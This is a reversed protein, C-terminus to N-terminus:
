LREDIGGGTRRTEGGGLAGLRETSGGSEARMGQTALDLRTTRRARPRPQATRWACRSWACPRRGACRSSGQPAALASCPPADSFAALHLLMFAQGVARAAGGLRALEGEVIAWSKGPSPPLFCGKAHEKSIVLGTAWSMLEALAGLRWSHSHAHAALLLAVM